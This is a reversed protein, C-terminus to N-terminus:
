RLDAFLKEVGESIKNNAKEKKSPVVAAVEGQWVLAEAKPDILHVSVTGQQFRNVVVEKSKWTYRRQGMYYPADTRFNTDRTQVEDTVVVGINVQLDPNAESFRLGRRELQRRVESQIVVLNEEAKPSGISDTSIPLFNFTKYNSLTFADNGESNLVRVSNCAAVLFVLLFGVLSINKM